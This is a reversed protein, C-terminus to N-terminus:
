AMIPVTALMILSLKWSLFCLFVIGGVVTIIQRFFEAITTKLTEQVQTIDSSLRSTMEGVKNQNFYDMPMYVLRSFASHRLDRMTNETVNTFIVVRFYSFVSQIGFLIFLLIAVNNINDLNILQISDAMSVSKSDTGGGLLQGMLFPFVLGASTSLLLFFWGVTFWVRYPRLFTFIGKAKQISEKTLKTKKTKDKNPRLM